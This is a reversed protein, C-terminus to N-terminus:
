LTKAKFNCLSKLQSNPKAWHLFAKDLRQELGSKNAFFVNHTNERRTIRWVQEIPNLDPSYPPLGLFTVASSIDRYEGTQDENVLRVAKKHWSANDMVLVYKKGAPVPHVKLFARISELTTQYNFGSPKDVFLEGTGPIVFGSYSLKDRGPLSAIEPQSGKKYWACTITSQVYFHVEDQYVVILENDASM